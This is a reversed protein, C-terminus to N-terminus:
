VEVMLISFSDGLRIMDTDFINIAIIEMEYTYYLRVLKDSLRENKEFFIIKM